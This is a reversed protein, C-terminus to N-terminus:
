RKAGLEEFFATAAGDRHNFVTAAIGDLLEARFDGRDLDLRLRTDEVPEHLRAVVHYAYARNVLAGRLSPEDKRLHLCDAVAEVAAGRAHDALRAFKGRAECLPRRAIQPM